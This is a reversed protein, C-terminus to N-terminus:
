TNSVHAPQIRGHPDVYRVEAELPCDLHLHARNQIYRILQLTDRSSAQGQNTIFNAHRSSVQADGFRLGKLGMSEIARGPPGAKRFLRDSNKFVSGCNPKDLPFKTRRSRLIALMDAMIKARSRTTLHLVVRVIVHNRDQFWSRRYGFDCESAPRTFVQGSGDVYTVTDITDGISRRLSGGNMSVLGGLSGPIGVTHELGSLGAHAAYRALRPMSIGAQAVLTRDRIHVDAFGRDLKIILGRLGKDDFLLNSGKGIVIWPLNQEQAIRILLAVQEIQTPEALVDVPGGIRWTSHRRLPENCHYPINQRCLVPALKRYTDPQYRDKKKSERHSMCEIAM